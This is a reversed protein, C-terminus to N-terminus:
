IDVFVCDIVTESESSCLIDSVEVSVCDDDDVNVCSARDFDSVTVRVSVPKVSDRSDEADFECVTVTELVMPVGEDVYVVVGENSTVPLLDAEGM